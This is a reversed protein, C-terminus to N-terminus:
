KSLKKRAAKLKDNFRDIMDRAKEPAWQYWMTGVSFLGDLTPKSHILCLDIQKILEKAINHSRKWRQDHVAQGLEDRLRWAKNIPHLQQEGETKHVFM